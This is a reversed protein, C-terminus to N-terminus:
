VSLGICLAIGTWPDLMRIVRTQSWPRAPACATMEEIDTIAGDTAILLCVYTRVPQPLQQVNQMTARIVPAFNTPGFLRCNALLSRCASIIGGVGRVHPDAFDGNVPYCHSVPGNAVRAGFAWTTFLRCALLPQKIVSCWCRGYHTAFTGEGVDGAIHTQSCDRCAGTSQVHLICTYLPNSACQTANYFALVSGVGKLATEYLTDGYGTYHLSAPDNPEKNSLTFDIAVSFDILLGERLHDLFSKTEAISANAFTIEGATGSATQKYLLPVRAGTGCARRLIDDVSLRASGILDNTGDEDWDMVQPM